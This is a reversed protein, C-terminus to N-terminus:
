PSEIQLLYEILQDLEAPSLSAVGSDHQGGPNATTLVEQLSAASGDHLYPGSAWLGPLM